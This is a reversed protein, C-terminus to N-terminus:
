SAATQAAPFKASLREYLALDWQNDGYESDFQIYKRGQIYQTNYHKRMNSIYTKVTAESLHLDSCIESMTWGNEFYAAVLMQNEQLSAGTRSVFKGGSGDKAPIEQEKIEMGQSEYIENKRGQATQWRLASDLRDQLIKNNGEAIALRRELECNQLHMDNFVRKLENVDYLFSESAEELLQQYCHQLQRFYGIKPRKRPNEDWISEDVRFTKWSVNEYYDEFDSPDSMDFLRILRDFLM